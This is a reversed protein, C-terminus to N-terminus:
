ILRSVENLRRRLECQWQQATTERARKAHEARNKALSTLQKGLEKLRHLVMKSETSFRVQDLWCPVLLDPPPNELCDGSLQQWALVTLARHSQPNVWANFYPGYCDDALVVTFDNPERFPRYLSTQVSHRAASPPLLDSDQIGRAIKLCENALPKLKEVRSQAMAVVFDAISVEDAEGNIELHIKRKWQPKCKSDQQLERVRLPAHLPELWPVEEKLHTRYLALVQQANVYPLDKGSLSLDDPFRPFPVFVQKILAKPERPHPAQSPELPQKSCIFGLVETIEALCETELLDQSLSDDPFMETLIANETIRFYRPLTEAGEQAWAGRDLDFKCHWANEFYIFVGPTLDADHPIGGSQLSDTAEFFSDASDYLIVDDKGQYHATLEAFLFDLDILKTTTM